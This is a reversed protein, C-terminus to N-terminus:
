FLVEVDGEPPMEEKISSRKWDSSHSLLATIRVMWSIDRRAGLAAVTSVTVSM